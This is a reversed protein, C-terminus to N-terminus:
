RGKVFRIPEVAPELQVNLAAIGGEADVEFMVRSARDFCHAEHIEFLNNEAFAWVDYHWHLLPLRLSGRFLELTTDNHRVEVRGYGPHVYPGVYDELRHSPVTDIV